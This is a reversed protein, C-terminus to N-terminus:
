GSSCDRERCARFRARFNPGPANPWIPQSMATLPIASPRWRGASPSRFISPLRPLRDRDQATMGDDGAKLASILARHVLLDAYRRIPSTFHAYRKLNLGFHGFNQPAYYAQTQARLVAMSVVESGAEGEVQELLRNLHRTQLVQGKALSLGMSGVTERLADLKEPNPEEHVRYLLPQKAKELTEAACVNALIMFEEILRHADLRDRFDISAVQGEANLKIQREPLDLDLPQRKQRAIVTSGYAAFLHQVQSQMEADLSGADGDQVAQVQAYHLDGRSNM